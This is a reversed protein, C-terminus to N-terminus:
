TMKVLNLSEADGYPTVGFFKGELVPEERGNWIGKIKESSTLFDRKVEEYSMAEQGRNNVTDLLRGDRKRFRGDVVVHRVDGVNSHLVVAAVADEWGLMGPSEGDFVVVDAKAGEVLRGLDGRHVADAGKKTALVFADRVAM